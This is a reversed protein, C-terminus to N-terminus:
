PQAKTQTTSNSQGVWSLAITGLLVSIFQIMYLKTSTRHWFEFDDSGSMGAERLANIQPTVYGISISAFILGIVLFVCVIIPGYLRSIRKRTISTVLAMIVWIVAVVVGVIGLALHVPESANFLAPAAQMAVNSSEKPFKSFLTGVSLMLHALSGLWLASALFAITCLIRSITNM